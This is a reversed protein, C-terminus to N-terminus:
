QCSLDLLDKKIKSRILQLNWTNSTLIEQNNDSILSDKYIIKNAEIDM